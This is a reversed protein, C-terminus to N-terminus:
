PNPVTPRGSEAAEVARRMREAAGGAKRMAESAGDRAGRLSAGVDNREYEAPVTFDAASVGGRTLESVRFNTRTTTTDPGRISRSTMEQMLPFGKPRRDNLVKIVKAAENGMMGGMTAGFSKEFADFGTALLDLDDSLHAVTVQETRMPMAAGMMAMAMTYGITMRYKHTSFGLITEGAGLDEIRSSTDRVTMQLMGGMGGLGSLSDMVTVQKTSPDVISMRAGDSEVLMWGGNAMGPTAGQAFDIRAKGDLVRVTTTTPQPGKAEGSLGPTETTGTMTFRFGDGTGPITGSSTTTTTGTDAGAGADKGTCAVLSFAAVLLSGAARLMTM